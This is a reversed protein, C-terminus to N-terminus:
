NDQADIEARRAKLVAKLAFLFDEWTLPDHGEEELAENADEFLREFYAHDITPFRTKRWSLLLIEERTM